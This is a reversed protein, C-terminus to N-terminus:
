QGVVKAGDDKRSASQDFKTLVRQFDAWDMWTKTSLHALWQSREKRFEDLMVYYVERYATCNCTLMWAGNPKGVNRNGFYSFSVAKHKGCAECTM